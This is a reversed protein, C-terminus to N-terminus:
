LSHQPKAKGLFSILRLDLQNLSLGREDLEKRLWEGFDGPM